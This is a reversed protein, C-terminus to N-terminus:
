QSYNLAFATNATGNQHNNTWNYAPSVSMGPYTEVMKSKGRQRVMAWSSFDAAQVSTSLNGIRGDRNQCSSSFTFVQARGLAGSKITLTATKIGPVADRLGSSIRWSHIKTCSFTMSQLPPRLCLSSTRREYNRWLMLHM